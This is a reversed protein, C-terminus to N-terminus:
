RSGSGRTLYGPARGVAERDLDPIEHVATVPHLFLMSVVHNVLWPEARRDKHCKIWVAECERLMAFRLANEDQENRRM